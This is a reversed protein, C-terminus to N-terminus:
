EDSVEDGKLWPWEKLLRDQLPSGKLVLNYFLWKAAERAENRERRLEDPLESM